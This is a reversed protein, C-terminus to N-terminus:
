FEKSLIDLKDFLNSVFESKVEENDGDDESRVETPVLDEAFKNLRVLLEDEDPVGLDRSLGSLRRELEGLDIEVVEPERTEAVDEASASEEMSDEEEEAQDLLGVILEQAMSLHQSVEGLASRTKRSLRSGLRGEAIEIAENLEKFRELTAAVESDISRTTEPEDPTEGETRAEEKAVVEEATEAPSEDIKNCGFDRGIADGVVKVITNAFDSAAANIAERLTDTPDPTEDDEDEDEVPTVVEEKRELSEVADLTEDPVGTAEDAVVVEEPVEESREAVADAVNKGDITVEVAVEATAETNEDTEKVENVEVTRAAKELPEFNSLTYAISRSLKPLAGSRAMLEVDEPTIVRKNIAQVIADPDSPVSVGSIELMDNKTFRYGVIEGEDNVRYEWEIPNWGISVARLFGKEYLKQVRGAFPYDEAEVFQSWVRLVSKGDEIGIEWKVHKGIPLSRYDHSWLFAPNQSFGRFDWGTNVVENGDRKVGDTSAIFQIVGAGMDPMPQVERINLGRQLLIKKGDELDRKLDGSPLDLGFRKLNRWRTEAFDGELIMDPGNGLQENAM